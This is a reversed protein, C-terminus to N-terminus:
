LLASLDGHHGSHLDCPLHLQFGTKCEGVATFFAEVGPDQTADIFLVKQKRSILDADELFLQYNRVMEAEPCIGTAELWDVFAWGLGDDQRALNGIGYILCDARNFDALALRKPKVASNM